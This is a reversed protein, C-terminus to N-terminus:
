VNMLSKRYLEMYRKASLENQKKMKEDLWGGNFHHISVTNDTMQLLGSMYDYPHFYDYAYINMGKINQSAGNIKYGEDLVIRTDYFGCTNKNQKGSEDLFAVEKRADLLRKIMPHNKVAGSCGGFNIIQWKEVGCFAEQYRMRDLSQKLEVDTDLYFGGYNYLIDLRAYDPVFGYAGGEYAHKMYPHKNIDYNDENWELIEYDSCYKKWSDMCKQLNDPIPKRGLWMYHIRKPILPEDTMIATGSLSGTCLNHICMMPMIYATMNKTSEVRELQDKVEPFRSINILIVANADCRNLYDPSKVEYKQNGIVISSGWKTKDNDLYCDLHSLLNYERLIEPTTIQGIVGAGFMLIKKNSHLIDEAMINFSCCRLNM